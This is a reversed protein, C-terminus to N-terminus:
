EKEGKEKKEIAGGIMGSRGQVLLNSMNQPCPDATENVKYKYSTVCHKM